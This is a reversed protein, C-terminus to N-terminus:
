MLAEVVFKNASVLIVHGDKRQGAIQFPSTNDWYSKSDGVM